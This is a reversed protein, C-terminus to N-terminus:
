KLRAKYYIVKGDKIKYRFWKLKPIRCKKISQERTYIVVSMKTEEDEM